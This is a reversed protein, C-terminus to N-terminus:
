AGARLNYAFSRVNRNINTEEPESRPLKRERYM